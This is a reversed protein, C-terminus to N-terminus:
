VATQPTTAAATLRQLIRIITLRARADLTDTRLLTRLAPAYRQFADPDRATATELLTLTGLTPSTLWSPVSSAVGDSTDRALRTALDAPALVTSDILATLIAAMRDRNYQIFTAVLTSQMASPATSLAGESVLAQIGTLARYRVSGGGPGRDDARIAATFGKAVRESSLVDKTALDVLADAAHEAGGIIEDLAFWLTSEVRPTSVEIDPKAVLVALLEAAAADATTQERIDEVLTPVPVANGGSADARLLDVLLEYQHNRASPSLRPVGDALSEVVLADDVGDLGPGVCEVAINAAHRAASPNAQPVVAAAAQALGVQSGSQGSDATAHAEIAELGDALTLDSDKSILIGYQHYVTDPLEPALGAAALTILLSRINSTDDIKPARAARRLTQLSVDIPDTVIGADVLSTLTNAALVSESGSVSQVDAVLEEVPFPGRIDVAPFDTALEGFVEAARHSRDRTIREVLRDRLRYVDRRTALNADVLRRLASTSLRRIHADDTMSAVADKLQDRDPEIHGADMLRVLARAYTDHARDRTELATVIGSADVTTSSPICDTEILYELAAVANKRHTKFSDVHIPFPSGIDEWKEDAAVIDVLRQCVSQDVVTVVGNDIAEILAAYRLPPGNADIGAVVADLFAEVDDDVVTTEQTAGLRSHTNLSTAVALGGARVVYNDAGRATEIVNQLDEVPLQPHHNHECIAHLTRLIPRRVDTSDATRFTDLLTPVISAVDGHTGVCTPNLDSLTGLLSLAPETAAQSPPASLTGAAVAALADLRRRGCDDGDLPTPLSAGKDRPTSRSYAAPTDLLRDLTALVDAQLQQAHSTVNFLATARAGTQVDHADEFADVLADVLAVVTATSLPEPDHVTVDLHRVLGQLDDVTDRCSIITSVVRGTDARPRAELTAVADRVAAAQDTADSM